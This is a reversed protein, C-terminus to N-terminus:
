VWAGTKNTFKAPFFTKHRANLLAVVEHALDDADAPGLPWGKINDGTRQVYAIPKGLYAIHRGPELTFPGAIKRRNQLRAFFHNMNQLWTSM